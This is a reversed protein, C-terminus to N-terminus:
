GGFATMALAVLPPMTVVSLLTSLAVLGVSLPIDRGYKVSFAAFKSYFGPKEVVRIELGNPLVAAKYTEGVGPYEFSQIMQRAMRESRKM